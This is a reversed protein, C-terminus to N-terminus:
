AHKISFDAFVEKPTGWTVDVGDVVALLSGEHLYEVFQKLLDPEGQACVIVSGDAANKIWGTLGLFDASDQAYARYAVNQVKGTIVCNMEMM